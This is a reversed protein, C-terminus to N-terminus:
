DPALEALPIVTSRKVTELVISSKVDRVGSVRLLRRMTFDSLADIDRVIVHLLFDMEGTMTYCALVEPRDILTKRFREVIEDSHQELKIQVIAQISQGLKKPDVIAAYGQILGATELQRVRRACPTPSLDVREALDTVSMRGDQQLLDLIRRDTKDLKM